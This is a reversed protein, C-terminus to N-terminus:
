RLLSIEIWVVTTPVARLATLMEINAFVTATQDPEILWSRGSIL